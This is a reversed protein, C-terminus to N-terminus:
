KTRVVTVQMTSPLVADGATLQLSGRRGAAVGARLYSAGGATLTVNVPVGSTLPRVRLPFGGSVNQFLSRHNWSPQTFLAPIGPVADDTYVSVAFDRFVPIPDKGLVEQLNDLGTVENNVLAMWFAADDGARQDAAYRLFAWAAGRVGLDDSDEYPSNTEPNELYEAYRTENQSGFLVFADRSATGTALISNGLNQRPARQARHYFLLEEAIHSLGENLYVDEDFNDTELVYLRRSANILHQFEHGVTAITSELVDATSRQNGNVVGTPDAALMYFIEAQNSTQCIFPAVGNPQRPFLDRVYFFGGVVYDVNAPTLENVARTYFIISRGNLDVDGPAGFNAVNIPYVLTDFTAAVHEYDATTLGNAPNNVDAVVVARQSVAVVRGTRNDAVDCPSDTSTNLTLTSGVAPPEANMQLRAGTRRRYAARAGAAMPRLRDYAAQNLRAHFGGDRGPLVNADGLGGLLVSSPSLSPSPPGSVTSVGAAMARVSLNSGLARSGNFPIVTFEAGGAGGELCLLSGAAGSRQVSQGVALTIGAGPADCEASTGLVTITATDAKGQATVMIRASGTRVGTVLGTQTVTAVEQELSTWQFEVDPVLQSEDDRASAGLQVTEGASITREAPAVVVRDVSPGSGSPSDCAGAALALLLYAALRRKM